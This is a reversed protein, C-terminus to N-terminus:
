TLGSPGRIPLGGTSSAQGHNHWLASYDRESPCSSLQDVQEELECLASITHAVEYDLKPGFAVFFRFLSTFQEWGPLELLRQRFEVNSIVGGPQGWVMEAIAEQQESPIGANGQLSGRINALLRIMEVRADNPLLLLHEKLDRQVREAVGLYTATIYLSSVAYTLHHSM